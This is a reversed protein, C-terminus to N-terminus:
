KAERIQWHVFPYHHNCKPCDWSGKVLDADREHFLVVICHCYLCMTPKSFVPGFAAAKKAAQKLRQNRAM